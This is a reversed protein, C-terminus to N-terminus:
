KGKLSQFIFILPNFGLAVSSSNFGLTERKTWLEQISFVVMFLLLVFCFVFNELRFCSKEFTHNLVM